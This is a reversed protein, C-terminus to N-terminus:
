RGAIRDESRRGASRDVIGPTEGDAFFDHLQVCIGPTV